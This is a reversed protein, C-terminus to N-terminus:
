GDFSINLLVDITKFESLLLNSKSQTMRGINMFGLEFTYGQM